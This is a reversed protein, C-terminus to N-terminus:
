KSATSSPLILASAVSGPPLQPTAPGLPPSCTFIGDLGQHPGKSKAPLLHQSLHWNALKPHGKTLHQVATETHWSDRLVRLSVTPEPPRTVKAM